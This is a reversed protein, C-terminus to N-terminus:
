CIEVDGEQIYEAFIDSRKNNEIVALSLVKTQEKNEFDTFICNKELPEGFLTKLFVQNGHAIEEYVEGNFKFAHENLDIHNTETIEKGFYIIEDSPIVVLIKNKELKYKGIYRKKIKM